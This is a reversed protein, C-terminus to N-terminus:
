LPAGMLWPKKKRLYYFFFPLCFVLGFGAQNPDVKYLRVKHVSEKKEGM